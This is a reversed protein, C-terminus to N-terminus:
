QRSGARRWGRAVITRGRGRRDVDVPRYLDLRSGGHRGYIDMATHEVPGVRLEQRTGPRLFIESLCLDAVALGGHSSLVLIVQRISSHCM